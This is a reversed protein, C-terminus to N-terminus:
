HDRPNYILNLGKGGQQEFREGADGSKGASMM